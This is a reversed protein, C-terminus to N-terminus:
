ASVKVVLRSLVAKRWQDLVEVITQGAGAADEVAKQMEPWKAMEEVDGLLAQSLCSRSKGIKELMHYQLRGKNAM